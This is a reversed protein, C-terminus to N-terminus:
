GGPAQRAAQELQAVQARVTPALPDDPALRLFRRYAVLATRADGSLQAADALQLQVQPDDPALRALRAFAEKADGYATQMRAYATAVRESTRARADETLRNQALTEGFRRQAPNGALPQTFFAGPDSVQAELQALEVQERLRTAQAFHLGALRRLGDVDRPRLEVYRELASIAESQRGDTELATALDRWARANRPNRTVRERADSVSRGANAGGGFNLVDGLGSPANSGVGFVVFGVGFVLALFVFM